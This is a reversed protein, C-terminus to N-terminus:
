GDEVETLYDNLLERLLRARDPTLEIRITFENGYERPDIILDNKDLDFIM